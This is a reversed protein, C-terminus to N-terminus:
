ENSKGGTIPKLDERFNRIHALFQEMEDQISRLAQAVVLFSIQKENQRENQRLLWEMYEATRLNESSPVGKILDLIKENIKGVTIGKRSDTM